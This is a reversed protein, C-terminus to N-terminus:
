DDGKFTEKAWKEYGKLSDHMEKSMHQFVPLKASTMVMSAHVFLAGSALISVLEEGSISGEKVEKSLVELAAMTYYRLKKRREETINKLPVAGLAAVAAMNLTTGIEKQTFTSRNKDKPTGM